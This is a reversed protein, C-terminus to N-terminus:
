EPRRQSSRWHGWPQELCPCQLASPWHAHSAPRVPTSQLRNVQGPRPQEPLPYQSRTEPVQVHRVPKPPGSQAVRRHGDEHLPRPRQTSPLALWPACGHFARGHPPSPLAVSANLMHMRGKVSARGSGHRECSAVAIRAPQTELAGLARAQGIARSATQADVPGARALAVCVPGRARPKGTCVAAGLVADAGVVARTPAEIPPAGVVAGNGGARFSAGPTPRARGVGLARALVPPATLRALDGAAGVVARAGAETVHAGDWGSSGSVAVAAPWRQGGGSGAVAARWRRDGEWM